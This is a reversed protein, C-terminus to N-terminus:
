TVSYIDNSDSKILKNLADKSFKQVTTFVIIIFANKLNFDNNIFHFTFM